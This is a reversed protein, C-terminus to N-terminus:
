MISCYSKEDQAPVKGEMELQKLQLYSNENKKEMWEPLPKSWDEPPSKRKEWVTNAYHGHFRKLRREEESKIVAVGADVDNGNSDRYKVCNNYDTQWQTCDTNQGNIFYQHFRAKFSTCDDYEDKYVACPRIAWEDKLITQNDNANIDKETM